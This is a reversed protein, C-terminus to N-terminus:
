EAPAVAIEGKEGLAQDLAWIPSGYYPKPRPHSNALNHAANEIKRLRRVEEQLAAIEADRKALKARHEEESVMPITKM